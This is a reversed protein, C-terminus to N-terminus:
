FRAQNLILSIQDWDLKTAKWKMIIKYAVSSPFLLFHQMEVSLYNFDTVFAFQFWIVAHSNEYLHRLERVKLM